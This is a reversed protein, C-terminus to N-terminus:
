TKGPMIHDSIILAVYDGESDLNEMLEGAEDASDCEEIMFADELPALDKAIAELVERQDEILVIVIKEM